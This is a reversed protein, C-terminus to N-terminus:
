EVAMPIVGEWYPECIYLNNLKKPLKSILTNKDWVMFVNCNWYLASAVHLADMPFIGYKAGLKQAEEAIDRNVAIPIMWDHETFEAFRNNFEDLEDKTLEKKSEKLRRVEAITIVSTYLAYKKKEAGAMINTTIEYRTQGSPCVKPEQKVHAMFVSADLYPRELKPLEDAFSIQNSAM